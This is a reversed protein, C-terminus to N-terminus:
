SINPAKGSSLQTMADRDLWRFPCHECYEIRIKTEEYNTQVMPNKCNPCTLLGHNQQQGDPLTIILKRSHVQELDKGNLLVGHGSACVQYNDTLRMTKNCIPCPLAPGDYEGYPAEHRVIPAGPDGPLLAPRIHQVFQQSAQVIDDDGRDEPTVAIYLESSSIEWFHSRCYDVVFEMAEPNLVYRAQIDQGQAAYLDFYDSFDGELSIRVMGNAKLFSAFQLRDVASFQKSLGVLHTETNFPLDLAYILANEAVFGQGETIGPTTIYLSFHMGNLLDRKINALNHGATYYALIASSSDSVDPLDQSAPPRIISIRRSWLAGIGAVVLVAILFYFQENSGHM